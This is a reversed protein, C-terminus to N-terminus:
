HPKIEPKIIVSLSIGRSLNYLVVYKQNLIRCYFDFLRHIAEVHLLNSIPKMTYLDLQLLLEPVGEHAM